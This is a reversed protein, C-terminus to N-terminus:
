MARRLRNRQHYYWPRVTAAAGAAPFLGISAPYLIGGPHDATSPTNYATLPAAGAVDHDGSDADYVGGLPWYGVLADPRVLLPCLGAALSAVEADTLAANWLGVEAVRGSFFTAPTSRAASSVFTSDLGTPIRTTSNTGKSGGNFYAARSNLAAFVGAAHYWTNAVGGAGATSQAYSPLTASDRSLATVPDGALNGSFAIGAYNQENSSDGISLIYGGISVDDPYIWAAMSYPLSSVGISAAKLYESQADDFLRAM